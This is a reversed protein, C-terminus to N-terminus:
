RDNAQFCLPSTAAKVLCAFNHKDDVGVFCAFSVCSTYGTDRLDLITSLVEGPIASHSREFGGLILLGSCCGRYDEFFRARALVGLSRALAFRM